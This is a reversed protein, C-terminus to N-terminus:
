PPSYTQKHHSARSVIVSAYTIACLRFNDAARWSINVRLGKVLQKETRIRSSVCRLYPCMVQGFLGYALAV